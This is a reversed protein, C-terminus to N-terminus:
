NCTVRYEKRATSQLEPLLASPGQLGALLIPDPLLRSLVQSFHPTQHSWISHSCSSNVIKCDWAFWGPAVVAPVALTPGPVKARRSQPRSSPIALHALWRSRNRATSSTPSSTYWRPLVPPWWLQVKLIHKLLKPLLMVHTKGVCKQQTNFIRPQLNISM